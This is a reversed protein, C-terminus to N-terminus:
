TDCQNFSTIEPICVIEHNKHQIFSSVQFTNIEEKHGCSIYGDMWYLNEKPQLQLILALQLSHLTHPNYFKTVKRLQVGLNIQHHPQTLILTDFVM